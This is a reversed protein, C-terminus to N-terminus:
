VVSHREITTIYAWPGDVVKDYSGNATGRYVRAVVNTFGPHSIANTGLNGILVCDGDQAPTASFEDTNRAVLRDQPGPILVVRYYYTDSDAKWAGSSSLAGTPNAYSAPISVESNGISIRNAAYYSSKAAHHAVNEWNDAPAGADTSGASYRSIKAASRPQDFNAGEASRFFNDVKM